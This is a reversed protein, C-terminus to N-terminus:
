REEESLGHGLAARDDFVFCSGQWLSEQAPVTELYKLIGGKLHYVTEFGHARMYASAKECRIGGTCFMAVKKHQRPNLTNQVYDKFGTFTQIRPDIAGKFTGSDVEYDNRTDLLIVEPDALLANWDQAEVYTGALRSPDAEPARMTIIEKKARVKMRKFPQASAASFKLEGARINFHADLFDIVADLEDPMGAITANIGEPAILITGCIQNRDCLDKVAAVHHPIDDLPVFRYFAAVKWNM